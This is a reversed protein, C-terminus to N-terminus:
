QKICELKSAEYIARQTEYVVLLHVQDQHFQVRTQALPASSRGYPIHLFKSAQKEWGYSSWVCM